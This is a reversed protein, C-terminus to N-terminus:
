VNSLKAYNLLTGVKTSLVSLMEEILDQKDCLDWSYLVHIPQERLFSARRDGVEHSVVETLKGHNTPHARPKGDEDLKVADNTKDELAVASHGKGSLECNAVIKEVSARSAGLCERVQEATIVGLM